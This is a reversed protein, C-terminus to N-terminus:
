RKKQKKFVDTLSRTHICYVRRSMYYTNPGSLFPPLSSFLVAQSCIRLAHTWRPLLFSFFCLRLLFLRLLLLFPVFSAQLVYDGKHHAQQPGSLTEPPRWLIQAAIKRSPMPATPTLGAPMTVPGTTSSLNRSVVLEVQPEQRSEAIIDYVERFSKGQLSRGNWKIVEDGSITSHGTQEGIPDGGPGPSPPHVVPSKNVESQSSRAPFAVSTEWYIPTHM